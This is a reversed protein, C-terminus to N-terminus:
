GLTRQRALIPKWLGKTDLLMQLVERVAGDGGNKQAVYHAERRAESTADAPTASFGACRLLSIDQIDNGIFLVHKWELKLEALLEEIALVKDVIGQLCQAGLDDARQKVAPSKRGSILAVPINHRICEKVVIGDGTFFKYMEIREGHSDIGLLVKDDTHVGDVDTVVLRVDSLKQQLVADLNEYM